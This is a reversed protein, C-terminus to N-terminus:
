KLNETSDTSYTYNENYKYGMNELRYKFEYAHDKLYSLRSDQLWEQHFGANIADKRGEEGSNYISAVWNLINPCQKWHNIANTLEYECRKLEKLGCDACYISFEYNQYSDRKYLWFFDDYYSEHGKKGEEYLKDVKKKLELAEKYTNMKAEDILGFNWLVDELNKKAEGNVPEGKEIANKAEELDSKFDGTADDESFGNSSLLNKVRKYESELKAIFADETQVDNKLENEYQQPRSLKKYDGRPEAVLLKALRVLEKAIKVNKDM